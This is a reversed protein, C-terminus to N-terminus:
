EGLSGARGQGAIFLAISYCGIAAFALLAMILSSIDHGFDLFSAGNFGAGIVLLGGAVTWAAVARQRARIAWSATAIAFVALTLGLAAHTAVVAPGNGIVWTVSAYSGSFYNKPRAGPHRAPITAYLNAAMGLGSQVLLLLIAGLLLGRQTRGPYRATSVVTDPIAPTINM